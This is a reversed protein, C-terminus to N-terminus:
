SKRLFVDGHVTMALGYQPPDGLASSVEGNAKFTANLVTEGSEWASMFGELWRYTVLADLPWPSAIVVRCGRDLLLKPLGVTTNALPHRDLRGGSCVFLIVVEVGALARALILPSEALVGEDSIRQIYRKEATLSGHATVVVMQAGSLNKPIRRSTDTQFEFRDFTPQIRGLIAELTGYSEPEDSASIWALRRGDHQVPTTQVAQLWTLSPATGIACSKGLFEDESLVLNMPVQQLSPEPIVLINSAKPLPIKLKEMSVYFENNGEDCKILGYKYPYAASWKKLSRAFVDDGITPCVMELKGNQAITSVLQGTDTLGLLVVATDTGALEIAYSGPWQPDIPTTGVPMDISRESLLELALCADEVALSEVSARLLKRAAMVVMVLDSATDESYRTHDLRQHLAMVDAVTPASNSVARLFEALGPGIKKLAIQLTTKSREEVPLGALECHQITQALLAAVPALENQQDISRECHETADPLLQQLGARDGDKIGVLRLGLEITTLRIDGEDKLGQREYLERCTSVLRRAVEHLGLDRAIRLLAYAEQWLDGISVSTDCVCACSIGILAEIPSRTRQYIDAFSSWALRARQGKKGASTLIQEALDRAKQQQGELSFRGALLRLMELDSAEDNAHPALLCVLQVWQELLHLDSNEDRLHTGHRILHVLFDILGQPNEGVVEDPFRTVGIEVVKAQEMWKMVRLYFTKFEDESAPHAVPEEQQALSAGSESLDLYDSLFL